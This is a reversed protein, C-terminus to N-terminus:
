NRTQLWHEKGRVLWNFWSCWHPVKADTWALASPYQQSTNVNRHYLQAHPFSATYTCPKFIYSWSNQILLVLNVQLNLIPSYTQLQFTLVHQKNQAKSKRILLFNDTADSTITLSKQHLAQLSLIYVVGLTDGTGEELKTNQWLQPRFYELVWSTCIRVRPLRQPPLPISKEMMHLDFKLSKSNQAKALYVSICIGARVVKM